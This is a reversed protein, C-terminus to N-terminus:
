SSLCEAAQEFSVLRRVLANYAAHAGQPDDAELRAYLADEPQAITRPIEFGLLRLRPAGISVLLAEITQEGRGLAALGAAVIEEGPLGGDLAPPTSM